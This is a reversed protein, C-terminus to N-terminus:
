ADKAQDRLQKYPDTYPEFKALKYKEVTVKLSAPADHEPKKHDIYDEKSTDLTTCIDFEPEIFTELDITPDKLTLKASHVMRPKNSHLWRPYFSLLPKRFLILQTVEFDFSVPTGNRCAFRTMFDIGRMGKSEDLLEDPFTAIWHTEGTLDSFLVQIYPHNWNQTAVSAEATLSPASTFDAKFTKTVSVPAPNIPQTPRMISPGDFRPHKGDGTTFKPYLSIRIARTIYAKEQIISFPRVNVDDVGMDLLCAGDIEGIKFWPIFSIGTSQVLKRDKCELFLESCVTSLKYGDAMNHQLSKDLCQSIRIKPVNQDFSSMGLIFDM